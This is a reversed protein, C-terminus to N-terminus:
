HPFLTNNGPPWVQWVQSLPLHSFHLQLQWYKDELKPFSLFYKLNMSDMATQKFRLKVDKTKNKKQDLDGNTSCSVLNPFGLCEQYVMNNMCLVHMCRLMVNSGCEIAHSIIGRHFLHDTKQELNMFHLMRILNSLPITCRSITM